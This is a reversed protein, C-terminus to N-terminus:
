MCSTPQWHEDLSAYDSHQTEYEIALIQPILAVPPNSIPPFSRSANQSSLFGHELISCHWHIGIM